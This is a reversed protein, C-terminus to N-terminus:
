KVAEQQTELAAKLERAVRANMQAELRRLDARRSPTLADMSPQLKVAVESLLQNLDVEFYRPGLPKLRATARVLQRAAGDVNGREHQYLAVACHILGHYFLRQTGRSDRWLEELAEHCEYFNAEAWLRWFRRYPEPASASVIPSGPLDLRSGVRAAKAKV